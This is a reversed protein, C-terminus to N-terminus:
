YLDLFHVPLVLDWIIYAELTQVVVLTHLLLFHDYMKATCNDKMVVCGTYLLFSRFETAKFLRLYEFSRPKRSFESTFYPACTLLRQSVRSIISPSLRVSRPGSKWYLMLRKMVGNYVLHMPDYPFTKLM